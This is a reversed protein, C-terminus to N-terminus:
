DVAAGYRNLDAQASHTNAQSVSVGSVQSAITRSEDVIQGELMQQESKARELAYEYPRPDIEFLPDGAKVYQNERVYFHTIPGDVQPAIGIYNAFVVATDTRPYYNLIYVVLMGTLATAVLIAIKLKRALSESATPNDNM